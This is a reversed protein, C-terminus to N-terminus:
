AIGAATKILEITKELFSIQDKAVQHDHYVGDSNKVMYALVKGDYSDLHKNHAPQSAKLTDAVGASYAEKECAELQERSYTDPIDWEPVRALDVAKRYGQIAAECEEPTLPEYDEQEAVYEAAIEELAKVRENLDLLANVLENYHLDTFTM